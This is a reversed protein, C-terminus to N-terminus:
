YRPQVPVRFCQHQSYDNYSFINRTNDERYKEEKDEEEDSGFLLDCDIEKLMGAELQTNVTYAPFKSVFPRFGMVGEVEYSDEAHGTIAYGIPMMVHAYCTDVELTPQTLLYKDYIRLFKDSLVMLCLVVGVTLLSTIVSKNEFVTEKM